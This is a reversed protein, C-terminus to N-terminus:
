ETVVTYGADTADTVLREQWQPLLEALPTGEQLGAGIIEDAGASVASNFRTWNFAPNILDAQAQLAPTPDEAYFPDTKKKALWADAAAKFAPYTAASEQLPIDTTVFTILDAAGQQNASKNSIAWVGGGIAGSYAVSEGDWAPMPAAALQGEPWEYVPKIGFDGMWSASPLMLLKGDKAADIFEADFISKTSVTGNDILPQLMETVRVCEPARLNIRAVDPEPVNSFPCGSAAYYVSAGLRGEMSGILYGPHEQAVKEGLAQYEEWTTPVEYGFEEMLPKNYWLVTQALDNQL